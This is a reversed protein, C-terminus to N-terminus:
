HTSPGGGGFFFERTIVPMGPFLCQYNALFDLFMRRFKSNFFPDWLVIYKPMKPFIEGILMESLHSIMSFLVCNGNNFM